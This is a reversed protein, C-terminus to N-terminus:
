FELTKCSCVNSPCATGHAVRESRAYVVRVCESKQELPLADRYMTALNMQLPYQGRNVTQSTLAASWREHVM